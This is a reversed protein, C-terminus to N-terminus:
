LYSQSRGRRGLLPHCCSLYNTYRRGVWINAKERLKLAVEDAALPVDETLGFYVMNTNVLEMDVEIGPIEAIGEALLQAHHHDDALREVM